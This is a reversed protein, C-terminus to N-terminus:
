HVDVVTGGEVMRRLCADGHSAVLQAPTKGSTAVTVLGRAYRRDLVEFLVNVDRVPGVEDVILVPAEMARRVLPAEGDGLRHGRRAAVLDSETCWAFRVPRRADRGRKEADARADDHLEHLRAVLASTKGCGTPGLLLLGGNDPHWTRVTAILKKNCKSRWGVNNFRAWPWSPLDESAKWAATVYGIARKVNEQRVRKDQDAEYCPVCYPKGDGLVEGCKDCYPEGDDNRPFRDRAEAMALAFVNDFDARSM